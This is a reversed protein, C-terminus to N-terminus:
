RNGPARVPLTRAISDLARADIGDRFLWGNVVITPTGTGGLYGAVAIDRDVAGAPQRDVYCTDFAALDAVGAEGALDRFTKLGLARQQSYLTDYM